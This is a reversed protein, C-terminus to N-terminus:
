INNNPKNKLREAFEDNMTGNLATLQNIYTTSQQGVWIAYIISTASSMVSVVLLGLVGYGTSGTMNSVMSMTRFGALVSLCTGNIGIAAGILDQKLASRELKFFRTTYEKRYCVKEQVPFNPDPLPNFQVM